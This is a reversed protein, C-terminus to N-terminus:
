IIIMEKKHGRIRGSDPYVLQYSYVGEQTNVVYSGEFAASVQANEKTEKIINNLTIWYTLHWFVENKWLM